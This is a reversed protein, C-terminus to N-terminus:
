PPCNPNCAKKIYDRCADICDQHAGVSAGLFEPLNRKMEEMHRPNYRRWLRQEGWPDIFNIPASGV